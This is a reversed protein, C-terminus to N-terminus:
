PTRLTQRCSRGSLMGTARQGTARSILPMPRLRRGHCAPGCSREAVLRGRGARDRSGATGPALTRIHQPDRVEGVDCGPRAEDIDGEDDVGIARRITPQRTMASPARSSRARHAPAPAARDAAPGGRAAQHVMLSRPTWYREIWVGLPQGLSADLGGDAADAVAVVVREGLRDVAQELGLDDMPAARPAASATSNAVRSHTVPEVIPPEPAWRCCGARRLLLAVVGDFVAM